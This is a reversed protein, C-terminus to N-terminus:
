RRGNYAGPNQFYDLAHKAVTDLTWTLNKNQMATGVGLVAQMARDPDGDAMALIDRGAKAYRRYAAGVKDRQEPDGPRLDLCESLFRDMFVQLPTRQKPTKAVAQPSEQGSGEPRDTDTIQKTRIPVSQIPVSQPMKRTDSQHVLPVSKTDVTSPKSQGRKRMNEWRREAVKKNRLKLAWIHGQHSKWDHVKFGGPVETLFGALVLGDVAKGVEGRWGLLAELGNKTYGDLLGDRSFFKACKAWLRIPLVDASDGLIGILRMTKPHDFYDPDLNLYAM